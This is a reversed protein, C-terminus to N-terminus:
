DRWLVVEVLVARDQTSPGCVDTTVRLWRTVRVPHETGTLTHTGGLVISKITNDVTERCSYSANFRIHDKAQLTRNNVYNGYVENFTDAQHEEIITRLPSPDGYLAPVDMMRLADTGLTELQMDSIHTDGPTYVSTTNVVFFVTLIMIMAAALGEITFLQAGDNEMVM